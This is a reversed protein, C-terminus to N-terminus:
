VVVIRELFDFCLRVASLLPSIFKPNFGSRQIRTKRVDIEVKDAGVPWGQAHYLLQTAPRWWLRAHFDELVDDCYDCGSCETGGIRV